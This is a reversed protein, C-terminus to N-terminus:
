PPGVEEPAPTVQVIARPRDSYWKRVILTVILADDVWLFGNLADEIGKVLNSCDPKKAPRLRGSLAQERKAKTFRKPIPLMVDVQLLLPMALLEPPRFRLAELQVRQKYNRTKDPDYSVIRGGIITRGTRQQAQTVGHITFRIM